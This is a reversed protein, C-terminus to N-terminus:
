TGRHWRARCVTWEWLPVHQPAVPRPAVPPAPAAHTYRRGPQCARIVERAAGGGRRRGSGCLAGGRVDQARANRVERRGDLTYSAVVPVVRSVTPATAVGGSAGRVPTAGQAYLTTVSHSPLDVSGSVTVDALAAHSQTSSTQRVKMTSPLGTGALTLTKQSTANNLVVMTFAGSAADKFSAVWLTTDDTTTSVRVMGPRIYRYFQQAVRFLPGPTCTGSNQYFLTYHAGAPNSPRPECVQWYVVANFDNQLCSMLNKAYAWAGGPTNGGEDVTTETWSDFQGGFETNWLRSKKGKNVTRYTNDTGAALLRCLANGSRTKADTNDSYHISMISCISDAVPDKSVHSVAQGLWDPWWVMDAYTVPVTHGKSAFYKAVDIIMASYEAPLQCSSNYPFCFGGENQPSVTHLAQGVSDRFENTYDLLYQAYADHYQPLLAGGVRSGETKWPGPPSWVSAMFKLPEGSQAAKAKIARLYAIQRTWMHVENEDPDSGCAPGKPYLETRLITLGLTDILLNLFQQNYYPAPNWWPTMGGFAGLGDITQHTTAMDVTVRAQVAVPAIAGALVMVALGIATLRM